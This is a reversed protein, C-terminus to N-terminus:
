FGEHWFMGCHMEHFSVPALVPVHLSAPLSAVRSFFKSTNKRRWMVGQRRGGGGQKVHGGDKLGRGNCEVGVEGGEQQKAPYKFWAQKLFSFLFCFWGVRGHCQTRCRDETERM